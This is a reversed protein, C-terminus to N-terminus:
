ESVMEQGPWKEMVGTGENLFFTISKVLLDWCKDGVRGLVPTLCLVTIEARFDCSSATVEGKATPFFSEEDPIPMDIISQFHLLPFCNQSLSNYNKTIAQALLSM